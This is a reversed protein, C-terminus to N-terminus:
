RPPDFPPVGARRRLYSLGQWVAPRKAVCRLLRRKGPVDVLAFAVLITLVGQGPLVLMLAGMVLLTLGVINRVVRWGLSVPRISSRVFFDRPARAVLWPVLVLSGVFMFASAVSVFALVQGHSLVYTRLQDM